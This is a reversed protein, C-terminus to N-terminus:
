TQLDLFRHITAFSQFNIYLNLLIDPNDTNVKLVVFEPLKEVLYLVLLTRLLYAVPSGPELFHPLNPLM